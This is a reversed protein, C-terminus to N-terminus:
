HLSVSVRGWYDASPPKPFRQHKLADRVCVGLQTDPKVLAAVVKGDSGLKLLVEFGAGGSAPGGLCRDLALGLQRASFPGFSKKYVQGEPSSANADALRLAEAFDEAQTADARTIPPAVLLLLLTLTMM